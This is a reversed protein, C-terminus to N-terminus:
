YQIGTVSSIWSIASSVKAYVGYKNARACGHGWSVVGVLVPDNHQDHMILPGGSDGQCSDRGGNAYGAAIMTDNVKGNYAIPSNAIENSVIPVVVKNLVSSSSGGESTRGWGYVISELGPAQYGQAEFDATALKIAKLSPNAAFDIESSLEILAFDNSFAIPKSYQPHRIVNKFPLSIGVDDLSLVGGKISSFHGYCHAATLVWKSSIISAGCSRLSVTFSAENPDTVPEGGVIKEFASVSQQLSLFVVTMMVFKKM